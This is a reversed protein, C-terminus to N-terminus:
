KLLSQKRKPFKRYCGYAIVSLIILGILGTAGDIFYRYEEQVVFVFFFTGSINLMEHMLAVPFISGSRLYIFQLIVGAVICFAIMFLLGLHHYPGFNLDYLYIVPM